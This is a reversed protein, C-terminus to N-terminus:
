LHAKTAPEAAAPEKRAGPAGGAAGDEPLPCAFGVVHALTRKRTLARHIGLIAQFSKGDNRRLQVVRSFSSQGPAQALLWAEIGGACEDPPLADSLAALGNSPSALGGVLRLWAESFWPSCGCLGSEFAALSGEDALAHLRADSAM